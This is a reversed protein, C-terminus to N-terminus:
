GVAKNFTLSWSLHKQSNQSNKLVTVKNSFFAGGSTNEQSIQSIKLGPVENLVLSKPM